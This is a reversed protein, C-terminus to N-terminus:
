IYLMKKSTEFAPVHEFFNSIVYNSIKKLRLSYSYFYKIVLSFRYLDFHRKRVVYVFVYLNKILEFINEFKTGM